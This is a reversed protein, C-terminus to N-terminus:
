PQSKMFAATTPFALMGIAYRDPALRLL